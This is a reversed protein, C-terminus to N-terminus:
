YLFREMGDTRGLVGKDKLTLLIERYDKEEVLFILRRITKRKGKDVQFIYVPPTYFFNVHRIKDFYYERRMAKIAINQITISDETIILYNMETLVTTTFIILPYGFIAMIIGIIVERPSAGVAYPVIIFCLQLIVGFVLCVRKNLIKWFNGKYIKITKNDTNNM